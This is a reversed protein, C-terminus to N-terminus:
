YGQMLLKWGSPLGEMPMYVAVECQGKATGKSHVAAIWGLAQNVKFVPGGSDGNACALQSGKVQVWAPKCAEPGCGTSIDLTYNTLAVYGCSFGTTLGRVCISENKMTGLMTRYGTVLRVATVSDAFFQAKEEDTTTYMEIDQDGDFFHTDPVVTIPIKGGAPSTYETLPAGKTGSISFRCHAATTLATITKASNSVAYGSTCEPGFEDGLTAGAYVASRSAETEVVEVRVPRGLLKFLESKKNMVENIRIGTAQVVVVVEGSEEDIGVGQLTPFLNRIAAMNSTMASKLDDMSFEAGAVFEIPLEGSALKLLRKNVPGNGKLRVIIKYEPSHQVSVGAVRGGFERRLKEVEGGSEEQSKLSKLAQGFPIGIQAALEQADAKLAEDKSM